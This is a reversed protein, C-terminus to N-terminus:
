TRCRQRAVRETALTVLDDGAPWEADEWVAPAVFTELEFGRERCLLRVRRNFGANLDTPPSCSATAGCRKWSSSPLARSGTRAGCSCTCGSACCRGGRWGPCRSAASGSRSTSGTASCSAASTAPPRRRPTSPSVPFAERLRALLAPRIEHRAAPTSGLRLTGLVGQGARVADAFAAEVAQLATSGEALLRRGAETLEVHRTTRVFLEVGLEAELQRIAQSLPSAAMHLRDAARSFSLEEAVAVFYRLHRLEPM